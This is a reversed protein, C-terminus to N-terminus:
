FAGVFCRLPLWVGDSDRFRAADRKSRPHTSTVLRLTSLWSGPGGSLEEQGRGEATTAYSRLIVRKRAGAQHARRYRPTHLRAQDALKRSLSDLFPYDSRPAPVRAHM